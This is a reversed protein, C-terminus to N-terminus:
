NLECCKTGPGSATLGVQVSAFVLTTAMLIRLFKKM